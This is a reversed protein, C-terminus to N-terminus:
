RRCATGSCHGDCPPASEGIWSAAIMVPEDAGAPSPIYALVTDRKALKILRTAGPLSEKDPGNKLAFEVAPKLWVNSALNSWREALNYHAGIILAESPVARYLDSPRYPTWFMFAAALASLMIAAILSRRLPPNM